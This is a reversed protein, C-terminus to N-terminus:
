EDDATSYNKLEERVVRRLVTELDDALVSTRLADNILTQYSRGGARAKFYAVVDADLYINVRVKGRAVPEGGIRLTARKMQEETIEPIESLDTNQESMM